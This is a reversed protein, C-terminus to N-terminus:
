NLTTDVRYRKFLDDFFDCVIQEGVHGVLESASFRYVEYGSLRLDRDQSMMMAYSDASSRGNQDTYHHKGDVEIVIRTSPSILLLFDMRQRLLADRGRQAVTKPDYHLWVEPLLAPLRPFSNRYHSFFTKFFFQQAPSSTPISGHLRRYLAIQADREDSYSKSEPWWDQLDKWLLGRDPFKRDYILVKEAHTVIEIDNNVADRFRIDPKISSAFVLNKPRGLVASGTIQVSFTPYGEIIDSQVVELNYRNLVMNLKKVLARQQTEDPIVDASVLSEILRGFRGSSCTFARLTKFLTEISWEGSDAIFENLIQNKLSRSEQFIPSSRPHYIDVMLESVLKSTREYRTELIWLRNLTNILGDPDILIDTKNLKRALDRRVRISINPYSSAEWLIEELEFSLEHGDSIPFQEIFRKAVIQTLVPDDKLKDVRSRIYQRKSLGPDDPSEPLNLSDCLAPLTVRTKPQITSEIARAVCEFLDRSATM